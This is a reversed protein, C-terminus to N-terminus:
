DKREETTKEKGFSKEGQEVWLEKLRVIVGSILEQDLDKIQQRLKTIVGASPVSQQMESNLQKVLSSRQFRKEQQKGSAFEVTIHRIHSKGM